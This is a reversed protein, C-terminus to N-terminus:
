NGPVGLALFQFDGFAIQDTALQFFISDLRLLAFELVFSNPSDNIIVRVLCSNALKFPLDACNTSGDGRLTRATFTLTDIDGRFKDGM